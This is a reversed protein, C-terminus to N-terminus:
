KKFKREALIIVNKILMAVTIPGLGGIPPTFLSAKPSVSKFDMDGFVRGDIRSYGADIAIVGKKLMDGTILGPSGVGTVVVDADALYDRLNPTNETLVTLSAAEEALLRSVPKGVLEGAGVIVVNKTKLDIDNEKLIHLVAGATPPLVAGPGSISRGVAKASLVDADEEPPISDLIYRTNLSDPLPLQVIFSKVGPRKRLKSIDKRLATTSTGSPYKHLVFGLGVDKFAKEKARLFSLSSADDGVLIAHLVPRSPMNAVRDKLGNLIDAAIRNGDINLAM